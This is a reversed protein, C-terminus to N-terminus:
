IGELKLLLNLAESASAAPVFLHDHYFAAVINCPIGHDALVASVRATLGVAALSSHASFSIKRFEGECKLGLKDAFNRACIVSVGEAERFVALTQGLKQLEGESVTAFTYIEDDLVPALSRLLTPLDTEGSM